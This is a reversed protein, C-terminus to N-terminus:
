RNGEGSAASKLRLGCQSMRAGNRDRGSVYGCCSCVFTREDLMLRKNRVFYKSCTMTTGAPWIVMVVMGGAREAYEILTNKVTSIASDVAKHAM